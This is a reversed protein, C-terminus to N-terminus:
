KNDQPVSTTPDPKDQPVSTDPDSTRARGGVESKTSEDQPVSTNPDPIDKQTTM